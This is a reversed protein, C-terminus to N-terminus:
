GRLDRRELKCLQTDTMPPSVSTGLLAASDILLRQLNFLTDSFM